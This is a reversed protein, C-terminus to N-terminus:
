LPDECTANEFFSLRDKAYAAGYTMASCRYGRQPQCSACARQTWQTGNWEWTDSVHGVGVVSGSFLVTRARQSDYAMAADERAAPGSLSVGMWIPPTQAPQNLFDPVRSPLRVRSM